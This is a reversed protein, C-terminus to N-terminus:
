MLGLARAHFRLSERIHRGWYSWNHNGPHEVYEHPIGLTDLRAHFKRNEEILFDDVGCDFRIDPLMAADADVILAMPDDPGGAGDEGFIRVTEALRDAERDDRNLMWGVDYLGSHAAVSCFMDPYKLALKMSGFGGMSLGSICRAKREPIAAFYKETFGIVEQMIHTEYAWGEREDTYFSHNGDPMVIILPMQEAYRELSTRRTWASHDDSYGHLLYLVPFPGDSDVGDPLLVTMATAKALATSRFQVQVLAM